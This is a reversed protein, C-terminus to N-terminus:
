VHARGIEALTVERLPVVVGDAEITIGGTEATAGTTQVPTAVAVEARKREPPPQSGMLLFAAIGAGLIALPVLWGLITRVISM